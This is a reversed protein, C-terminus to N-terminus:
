PVIVTDHGEAFAALCKKLEPPSNLNADELDPPEPVCCFVDQFLKNVDAAVRVNLAVTGPVPVDGM